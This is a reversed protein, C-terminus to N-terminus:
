KRKKYERIQKKKSDIKRVFVGEVGDIETLNWELDSDGDLELCDRILAPIRTRLQNPDSKPSIVSSTAKPLKMETKGRGGFLLLQVRIYSRNYEIIPEILLNYSM